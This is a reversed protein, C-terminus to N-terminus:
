PQAGILLNNIGTTEGFLRQAADIRMRTDSDQDFTSHQRILLLCDNTERRTKLSGNSSRRLSRMWHPSEPDYGYQGQGYSRKSFSPRFVRETRSRQQRNCALINMSDQRRAAMDQKIRVGNFLKKVRQISARRVPTEDVAMAM